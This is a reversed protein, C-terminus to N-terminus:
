RPPQPQQYPPQYPQPPLPQYPVPPYGGGPYPTPPQPPQQAKRSALILFQILGAVGAALAIKGVDGSSMQAKLVPLVSGQAWEAGCAVTAAVAGSVLHWHVKALDRMSVWGRAATSGVESLIHGNMKVFWGAVRMTASTYNVAKVADNLNKETEGVM